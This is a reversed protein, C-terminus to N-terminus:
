RATYDDYLWEDEAAYSSLFASHRRAPAAPSTEDIPQVTVLWHGPGIQDVLSPPLMLREGPRLKVECSRIIPDREV